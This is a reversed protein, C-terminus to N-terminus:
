GSPAPPRVVADHCAKAGIEDGTRRFVQVAQTLAAINQPSARCVENCSGAAFVGPGLIANVYGAGYLEQALRRGYSDDGGGNGRLGEVVYPAARIQTPRAKPTLAQISIWYGKGSHRVGFGAQGFLHPRDSQLLKSPGVRTWLLTIDM